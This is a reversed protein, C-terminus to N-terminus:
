DVKKALTCLALGVRADVAVQNVAFDFAGVQGEARQVALGTCDAGHKLTIAGGALTGQHEIRGAELEDGGEESAQIGANGGDGNGMEIDGLGLAGEGAQQRYRAVRLRGQHERCGRNEGFDLAQERLCGFKARHAPNRGVLNGVVGGAIPAVGGYGAGVSASSWYVEPEVAIGRPTITM